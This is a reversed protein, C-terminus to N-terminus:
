NDLGEEINELANLFSSLSDTIKVVILKAKKAAGFLRGVIKFATCSGHGTPDTEIPFAGMCYIWQRLIGPTAFESNSPKLGTDVHYITLEKALKLLITITVQLNQTRIKLYSFWILLRMRNFKSRAESKM